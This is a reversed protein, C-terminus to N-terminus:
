TFQEGLPLQMGCICAQVCMRKKGEPQIERVLLYDKGTAILVGNKDARCLTGPKETVEGSIVQPKFFRFRRKDIFGYASPWPDLGRILCHLEQASKSWDLHGMEKKLM